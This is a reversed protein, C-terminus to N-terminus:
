DKPINFNYHPTSSVSATTNPYQQSTNGSFYIVRDSGIPNPKPQSYVFQKLQIIERELDSIRKELLEQDTM